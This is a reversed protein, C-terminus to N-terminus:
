QDGACAQADPPAADVVATAPDDGTTIAASGLRRGLYPALYRGSLKTPPSWLAQESITSDDGAAGSIDAQLYRPTGGTLLLGRITPRFPRPDVDAGVSAAILAAVADAQQAAM